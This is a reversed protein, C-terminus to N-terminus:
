QDDMILVFCLIAIFVPTQFVPNLRLTNQKKKKGKEKVAKPNISQNKNISPSYVFIQFTKTVGSNRWSIQELELNVLSLGLSRLWLESTKGELGKEVKM